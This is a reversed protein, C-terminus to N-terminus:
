RGVLARDVRVKMQQSFGVAEITLSQNPQLDISDMTLIGFVLAGAPVERATRTDRVDYVSIALQPRSRAAISACRSVSWRRVRKSAATRSHTERPM